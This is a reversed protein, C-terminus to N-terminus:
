ACAGAWCPAAGASLRWASLPSPATRLLAGCGLLRWFGHRRLRVGGLEDLAALPQERGVAAEAVATVRHAAFGPGIERPGRQNCLVHPTVLHDREEVRSADVLPHWRRREGIGIESRDDCENVVRLRLRVRELAIAPVDIRGIELRAVGLGTLLIEVAGAPTRLAM